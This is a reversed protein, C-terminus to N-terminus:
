YTGLCCLSDLSLSHLALNQLMISDFMGKFTKLYIGKSATPETLTTISGKSRHMHSSGLAVGMTLEYSGGGSYRCHGGGYGRVLLSVCCLWLVTGLCDYAM